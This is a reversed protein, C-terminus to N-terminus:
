RLSFDVMWGVERLLDLIPRINQPERGLEINVYENEITLTVAGNFQTMREPIRKERLVKDRLDTDCDMEVERFPEQWDYSGHSAPLRYTILLERTPRRELEARVKMTPQSFDWALEKIKGTHFTSVALTDKDFSLKKFNYSMDQLAKRVQVVAEDLKEEPESSTSSLYRSTKLASSVHTSSPMSFTSSLDKRIQYATESRERYEETARKTAELRTREEELRVEEQSPLSSSLDQVKDEARKRFRMLRTRPPEIDIIESPPSRLVTVQGVTKPPPSYASSSVVSNVKGTSFLEQRAADLEARKKGLSPQLRSNEEAMDKRHSELREVSTQLTNLISQITRRTRNISSQTLFDLFISDLFVDFGLYPLEVTAEVEVGSLRWEAEQIKLDAKIVSEQANRIISSELTKRLSGGGLMDTFTMSRAKELDDNVQKYLDKAEQLLNIATELEGLETRLVVEREQLNEVTERLRDVQPADFNDTLSDVMKSHKQQAEELKKKSAIIAKLEAKTRELQVKENALEKQLQHQANLAHLLEIHTTQSKSDFTGQSREKLAPWSLSSLESVESSAETLVQNIRELSKENEKISQDVQVVRFQLHKEAAVARQLSEVEAEVERLAGM